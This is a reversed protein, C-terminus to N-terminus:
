YFIAWNDRISPLVFNTFNFWEFATQDVVYCLQIELKQIYKTYKTRSKSDNKNSIPYCSTLTIMPQINLSKPSEMYQSQLVPLLTIFSSANLLNINQNKEHKISFANKGCYMKLPRKKNKGCLFSNIGNFAGSLVSFDWLPPWNWIKKFQSFSIFAQNCQSLICYLAKHM